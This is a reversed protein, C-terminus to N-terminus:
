VVCGHRVVSVIITEEVPSANEKVSSRQVSSEEWLLGSEQNPGNM